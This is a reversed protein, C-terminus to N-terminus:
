VIHALLTEYPFYICHGLPVSHLFITSFGVVTWGGPNSLETVTRAHVAVTALDPRKTLLLQEHVFKSMILLDHISMHPGSLHNDRTLTYM